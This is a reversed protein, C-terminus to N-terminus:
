ENGREDFLGPQNGQPRAGVVAFLARDIEAAVSLATEKAVIERIQCTERHTLTLGKLAAAQWVDNANINIWTNMDMRLAPPLIIESEVETSSDSDM